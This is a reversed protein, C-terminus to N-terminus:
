EYFYGLGVLGPGTHAGMVPTFDTAFIEVPHLREQALARLEAAQHPADADMVALHLPRSEDIQEAVYDVIKKLAHHEGRVRCIPAVVGDQDVTLIPKIKLLSGAMYAAKGIRGGRELYDLTELTAAFGVRPKVEEVRRLVDQLDGGAFAIRAAEIAIFGEAVTVTRTDLVEVQRDPYEERLQAAAITGTGVAGSLPDSLALYLVSGAGAELCDRFIQVYEGLTPHTTHPLIGETRMRRYLERPSLDVGDRFIQEGAIISFPIVWIGLARATEAPVQAVSDTVIAVKNKHTHM